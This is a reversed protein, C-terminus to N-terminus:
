VRNIYIGLNSGELFLVNGAGDPAIQFGSDGQNNAQSSLLDGLFLLAEKTGEILVFGEKKEIRIKIGSEAATECIDDPSKM